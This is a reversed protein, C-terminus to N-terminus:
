KIKENLLELKLELTEIRQKLKLLEDEYRKIHEEDFNDNTVPTNNIFSQKKLAEVENVFYRTEGWWEFTRFREVYSLKVMQGQLSKLKKIVDEQNDLVSFYFIQQDSDGQSLIGEYTKFAVGKRSFKVLKGARDGESFTVYYAFAYFGGIGIVILFLFIFIGKKM